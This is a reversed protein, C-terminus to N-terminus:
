LKKEMKTIIPLAIWLGIFLLAAYFGISSFIGEPPMKGMATLAIMDALLVWFWIRFLGRRHAPVANPSRDLFPLLMFIVQAFGFAM